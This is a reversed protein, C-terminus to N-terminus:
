HVIRWKHLGTQYANHSWFGKRRAHQAAITTSSSFDVRGFAGKEDADDYVLHGNAISRGEMRVLECRLHITPRRQPSLLAILFKTANLVFAFAGLRWSALLLDRRRDDRVYAHPIEVRKTAGSPLNRPLVRPIVNRM